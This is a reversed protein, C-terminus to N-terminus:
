EARRKRRWFALGALSSSALLALAGPEPSAVTQGNAGVPVPDSSVDLALTNLGGTLSFPTTSSGPLIIQGNIQLTAPTSGLTLPGLQTLDTSNIGPITITMSTPGVTAGNALTGTFWADNGNAIQFQYTFQNTSGNLTLQPVPANPESPNPSQLALPYPTGNSALVTAFINGNLQGYAVSGPTPNTIAGGGPVHYTFSGGFQAPPSGGLGVDIGSQQTINGSFDYSIIADARAAQTHALLALFVSGLLVASRGLRRSPTLM